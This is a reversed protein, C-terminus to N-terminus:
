ERDYCTGRQSINEAVGTLTVKTNDFIIAVQRHEHM